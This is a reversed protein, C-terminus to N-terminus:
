DDSTEQKESCGAQGQQCGTCLGLVGPRGKRFFHTPLADGAEANWEGAVLQGCLAVEEGCGAGFLNHHDRM